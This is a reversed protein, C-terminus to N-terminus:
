EVKAKRRLDYKDGAKLKTYAADGEAPGTKDYVYVNNKGVVRMVDGKVIVATTEDIGLGMVQPFAKKVAEMDKFRDRQAFHQDIATSRLYAFGREYGEAMMDLNGLPNGRVLYEGQITAGASSGGAAGGRELIARMEKEAPTDLYSDIFRWQRGGTFWIGKAKRLPALIREEGAEKPNMAHVVEINKAGANKLMTVEGIQPPPRDGLATPIVVILADPGGAAEIFATLADKPTGGGGVIVLTGAPARAPDVKAPPFPPLARAAAARTMAVLDQAQGDKLEIQRAPRTASAGLCITVTSKGIVGMMRGRIIVATGEDIGLGFHGPNTKLATLLREQRSRAVFHQDVVAWPLLGFGEGLQPQPNGGSIMVKSMVAAGASTGAIVGGRQLLAQLQAVVRTGKYAAELRSQQGGEIWVATAQALPDAFGEKEAVARDAAHLITIAEKEFGRGTWTKIIADGDIKGDAPSATPIVVLQPKAGALQRFTEILRPQLEGGGHLILTGPLGAPALLSATAVGGPRATAEEALVVVDPLFSFALLIAVYLIARYRRSTQM